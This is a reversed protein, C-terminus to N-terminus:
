LAIEASVIMYAPKSGIHYLRYSKGDELAALTAEDTYIKQRGIQITCIQTQVGALAGVARATGYDMESSSLKVQGELMGVKFNGSKARQGRILAFAVMGLYLLLSGGLGLLIITPNEEFTQRLASDEGNFLSFGIVGASILLVLMVVIITQTQGKGMKERLREKQADTLHGQRNASLDERTFNLAKMLYDNTYRSIM